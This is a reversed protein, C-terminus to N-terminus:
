MISYNGWVVSYINRYWFTWHLLMTYVKYCCFYYLTFFLISMSCSSNSVTCRSQECAYFINELIEEREHCTSVAWIEIKIDGACFFSLVIIKLYAVSIIISLKISLVVFCKHMFWGKLWPSLDYFFFFWAINPGWFCFFASDDKVRYESWWCVWPDYVLCKM